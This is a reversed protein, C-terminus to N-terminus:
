LKFYESPTLGLRKKFYANFTTKSNFGSEYALSLLTFQKSHQNKNLELFHQLRYENVFDYFNIGIHENLLQSLQGSSCNICEALDSQNLKPDLYLKQNQMLDRLDNTLKKAIESKLGAKRYKKPKINKETIIEGKINLIETAKVFKPHNRLNDWLTDIKFFLFPAARNQLGKELWSLALDHKGLLFYISSLGASLPVSALPDEQIEKMVIQIQQYAQDRDGSSAYYYAKLEAVSLPSKDDQQQMIIIDWADKYRNLKCLAEVKTMYQAHWHPAIEINKDLYELAKTSENTYNYILGICYNVNSAFPNLSEAQFFSNLSEQIKGASALILGKYLLADAYSPRLQLARSINEFAEPINWEIWFKKGAIIAYIEALNSNLKLAEGVYMDIKQHAVVPNIQGTSGMWTYLNCLAVYAKVFDPDIELVNEFMSIVNKSQSFDYRYLYYTGKLYLDLAETNRVVPESAKIEPKISSDIKKTILTAIEDQLIFIDQLHRDWSESWIHYGDEAKSLQATIRVKDGSKRISGELIMSVNLKKGVERIDINKNKFVFSSTRATVHIGEIKALANIVEETIGDSFYENEKESSINVFPLVAISNKSIL